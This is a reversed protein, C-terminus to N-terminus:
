PCKEPLPHHAVKPYSVRFAALQADMDQIAQGLDHLRRLDVVGSPNAKELALQKAAERRSIVINCTTRETQSVWRADLCPQSTRCAKDADVIVKVAAARDILRRIADTSGDPDAAKLAKGDEVSKKLWATYDVMARTVGDPGKESDAFFDATFRDASSIDSEVAARTTALQEAARRANEAAIRAAAANRVDQATTQASAPGSAATLSLLLLALTKRMPGIM